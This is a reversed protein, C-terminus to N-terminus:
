KKPNYIFPKFPSCKIVTNRLEWAKIYIADRVSHREIRKRLVRYMRRTVVELSKKTLYGDPATTLRSTRSSAIAVHIAVPKFMESFDYTLSLKGPRESHMLGIYPDLGSAVLAHTCLTYIIAYLYNIAANLPDDAKPDRGRFSYEEPVLLSLIRWLRKSWKAEVSRLSQIDLARCLDSLIDEGVSRLEDLISGACENGREREKYLMYRSVNLMGLLKGEIFRRCISVRWEEDEAKMYLKRRTEPSSVMFPSILAIDIRRSHIAVPVGSEALMLLVGSGVRVRSGVVVLLDIDLVPVAVTTWAHSNNSRTTIVITSGRKSIKAVGRVVVITM